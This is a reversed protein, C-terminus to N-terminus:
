RSLLRFGALGWRQSGLITPYADIRQEFGAFLEVAGGRGSIRIGAEGLGGTLTSRHNVTEDVGIAQGSGKLFVGVRPTIPRRISLDLQGTWSYDVGSHQVVSGGELDADITAGAVSMHHLVRAGAVNWAIPDTKARDSLHRSVHHFIGVIETNPGVRVSSNAELTYNGQNPDFARLEDGLIAQYDIRIGTRGVVYDAVDLAGGFHTDWSFKPNDIALAAASLWFEYHSMFDPGKEAPLVTPQPIQAAAPVVSTLFVAVAISLKRM